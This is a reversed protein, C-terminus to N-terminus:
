FTIKERQIGLSHIMERCLREDEALQGQLAELSSFTRESRLHHLVQITLPKNYLDGEFDFINTEISKQTGNALTPRTGINLMGYGYDTNVLYVGNEPIVKHEDVQLNATPYGLKRGNQFGPVVTGQMTYNRGLCTNATEMDGALLAKRIVTSSIKQKSQLEKNLLVEIGLTKGYEVYDDFTKGDNGFHNDYGIILVKVNLLKSLIEKMFEFATLQSLEMTFPLLAVADVGTHILLDRKEDATTLMQVSLEPRLVQLPHNPFTVVLSALRQQKAKSIVQSVVFQHGRHVGDFSGITAVCGKNKIDKGIIEM